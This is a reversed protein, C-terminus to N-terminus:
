HLISVSSSRGWPMILFKFYAIIHAMAAMFFIFRRVHGIVDVFFFSLIGMGKIFLEFAIVFSKGILMKKIEWLFKGTIWKLYIKQRQRKTRFINWCKGVQQVWRPLKLFLKNSFDDRPIRQLIEFLRAWVWLVLKCYACNRTEM